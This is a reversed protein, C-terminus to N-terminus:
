DLANPPVIWTSPAFPQLRRKAVWKTRLNSIFVSGGKDRVPRKGRVCSSPLPAFMTPPYRSVLAPSIPSHRNAWRSAFGSATIQSRPPASAPTAVIMGILEGRANFLPSGSNGAGVTGQFQILNSYRLEGSRGMRGTGAIMGLSASHTYGAQNGIMIALNGSSVKESSGWTVGLEPSIGDVRFVAINSGMDHKILYARARRGDWMTVLPEQIRVAVEATTVVFGGRMIFGCGTVRLGVTEPDPLGPLLGLPLLNEISPLSNGTPMFVGELLVISPRTRQVIETLADDLQTLLNSSPAPAITAPNQSSQTTPSALSIPLPPSTQAWSMGPSVLREFSLALMSVLCLSGSKRGPRM